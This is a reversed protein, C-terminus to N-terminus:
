YKTKIMQGKDNIRYKGDHVGFFVNNHRDTWVTFAKNKEICNLPPPMDKFCLRDYKGEAMYGDGFYWFIVEYIGNRDPNPINYKEKLMNKNELWWNIKGRDTFPFQNVLVLSHNGDEHVAVIVVPHLTVWLGWAALACAALFLLAFTKIKLVVPELLWNM